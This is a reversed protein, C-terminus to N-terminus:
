NLINDLMNVSNEKERFEKVRERLEKKLLAIDRWCNIHEQLKFEELSVKEKELAVKETVAEEPARKIVNEVTCKVTECANVVESSLQGREGVLKNIEQIVEKISGIEDKNLQKFIEDSRKSAKKVSAETNRIHYNYDMMAPEESLMGKVNDNNISISMKNKVECHKTIFM